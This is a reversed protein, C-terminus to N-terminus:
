GSRWPTNNRIMGAMKRCTTRGAELMICVAAMIMQLYATMAGPDSKAAYPDGIEHMIGLITNLIPGPLHQQVM